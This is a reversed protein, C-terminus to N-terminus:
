PWEILPMFPENTFSGGAPETIRLILPNAHRGARSRDLPTLDFSLQKEITETCIDEHADHSLYLEGQPPNSLLFGTWAYLEFTHEQCGGQYVVQIKLVNKELTIATIKAADTPFGDHPWDTFLLVQSTGTGFTFTLILTPEAPSAPNPTWTPPLAFPTATEMQETTIIPMQNSCASAGVVLFLFALVLKIKTSTETKKQLMAM